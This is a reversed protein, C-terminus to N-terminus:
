GKQNKLYEKLKEMRPDIKKGGCSCVGANLNAGCEPCLGKCDERCLFRSPLNLIISSVCIDDIDLKGDETVLYEDQDKDANQLKQTVPYSVSFEFGSKYEEGCRACRATYALLFCAKLETYGSHNEVKGKVSCKGSTIDDSLEKLPYEEEFAIEDIEGCFIRSLDLM